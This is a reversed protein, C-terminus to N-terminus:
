LGYANKIKQFMKTTSLDNNQNKEYKLLYQM